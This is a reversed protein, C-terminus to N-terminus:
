NDESQLINDIKKLSRELFANLSEFDKSRCYVLAKEIFYRVEILEKAFAETM